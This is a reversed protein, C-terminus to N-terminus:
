IVIVDTETTNTENGYAYVIYLSKDTMYFDIANGIEYMDNTIDRSYINYGLTKLDEVQKQKSEIKSQIKEQILNKSVGERQIIDELEIKKNNRLDYNYTQIIVRQANDLGEKLTSRIILSLIDDKVNAAYEVTYITNKNSSGLINDTKSILESIEKNYGDIIASEVNIYPIHVEVDYSNLKTEKKEVTTYVISKDSEKKKVNITQENQLTNTFIQDFESLLIETQEETKKGFDGEDKAMKLRKLEVSSDIQVYFAIGIAIVCFLMILIYVFLQKKTLKNEEPLVVKM